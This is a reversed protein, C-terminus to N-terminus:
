KIQDSSIDRTITTQQVPVDTMAVFVFGGVALLLLLVFLTGFIRM